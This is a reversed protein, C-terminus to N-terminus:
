AIEIWELVMSNNGLYREFKLYKQVGNFTKDLKKGIKIVRAYTCTGETAVM